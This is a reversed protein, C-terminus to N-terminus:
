PKRLRQSFAYGAARESLSRINDPEANVGALELYARANAISVEIPVVPMETVKGSTMIDPVAVFLELQEPSTPQTTYFTTM